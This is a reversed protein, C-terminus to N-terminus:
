AALLGTNFSRATYPFDPELKEGRLAARAKRAKADLVAAKDLGNPSAHAIEKEPPFTANHGGGTPTWFTGALSHGLVLNLLDQTIDNLASTLYNIVIAGAGAALIPTFGLPPIFPSDPVQLFRLSPARYNLNWFLAHRVFPTWSGDPESHPPTNPPSLLFVTAIPLEDWPLEEYDGHLPDIGAADPPTFVGTVIRLADGAVQPGVGLTQHVHTLGTSLGPEIEIQSTLKSRPQHLIVDSARLLRLGKPPIQPAEDFEDASTPDLPKPAPAVGRHLFFEPVAFQPPGDFGVPYFDLVLAPDLYLPVDLTAAPGSGTSPHNFIPDSFFPKGTLPNIGFDFDAKQQEQITTRVGPVKENVFGPKVSAVWRQMKGNWRPTTQWPHKWKQAGACSITQAEVFARMAAFAGPQIHHAPSM